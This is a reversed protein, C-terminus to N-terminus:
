LGTKGSLSANSTALPREDLVPKDHERVVFSSVSDDAALELIRARRRDAARPAVMPDPAPSKLIGGVDGILLACDRTGTMHVGSDPRRRAAMAM